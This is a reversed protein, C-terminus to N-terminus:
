QQDFLFVSDGTVLAPVVAAHNVGANIVLGSGQLGLKADLAGGGHHFEAALVAQLMFDAPLHNHGGAFCLDRTELLQQLTALGIAQNSQPHKLPFLQAFNFRVAAAQQTQQHWACSDGIVRRHRPFVRFNHSGLASRNAGSRFHLFHDPPSRFDHDLSSASRERSSVYDIAGSQV